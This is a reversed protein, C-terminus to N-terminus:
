MYNTVFVTPFCTLVVNWTMIMKQEPKHLFPAIMSGHSLHNPLEPIAINSSKFYSLVWKVLFAKNRCLCHGFSFFFGLSQLGFRSSVVIRGNNLSWCLVTLRKLKSVM